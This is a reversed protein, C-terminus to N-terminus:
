TLVRGWRKFFIQILVSWQKSTGTFFNATQKYPGKLFGVGCPGPNIVQINKRQKCAQHRLCMWNAYTRGDSGCLPQYLNHTCPTCIVPELEAVNILIINMM